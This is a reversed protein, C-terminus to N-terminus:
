NQEIKLEFLGNESLFELLDLTNITHNELKDDILVNNKYIKVMQWDDIGDEYFVIKFNDKVSFIKRGEKQNALERAEEESECPVGAYTGDPNIVVTFM